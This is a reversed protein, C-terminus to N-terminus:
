PIHERFDPLIALIVLIVIIFLVAPVLWPEPLWM